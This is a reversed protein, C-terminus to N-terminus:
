AYGFLLIMTSIDLGSFLFKQVSNNPGPRGEEVLSIDDDDCSDDRIIPGGILEGDIHVDFAICDGAFITGKKVTLVIEFADDNQAEVYRHIHRRSHAIPQPDHHEDLTKGGVEITVEV